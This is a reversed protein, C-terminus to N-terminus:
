RHYFNDYMSLLLALNMAFIWSDYSTYHVNFVLHMITMYGSLLVAICLVIMLIKDLLFM